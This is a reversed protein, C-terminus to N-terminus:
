LLNARSYKKQVSGEAHSKLENLTDWFLIVHGSKKLLLKILLPILEKGEPLVDIFEFYIFLPSYLFNIKIFDTFDIFIM